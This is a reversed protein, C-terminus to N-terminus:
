EDDYFDDSSHMFLTLLLCLVYDDICLCPDYLEDGSFSRSAVLDFSAESAMLDFTTTPPPHGGNRQMPSSRQMQIGGRITVATIVARADFPRRWRWRDHRPLDRDGGGSAGRASAVV